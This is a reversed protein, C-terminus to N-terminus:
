AVRRKNKSSSSAGSLIRELEEPDPSNALAEQRSINSANVHRALQQNLTVMGTSEQGIQMQSYVQHLKDERILNRIAPTLALYEYVMIRGNRDKKECLAQSLVAELTFSLLTRIYDQRDLPFMQVLRNITNIAGNTHLTSLVLHGTEAARLAAEATEQDRMEGVLIVDPDERLSQRIATHFSDCDTGIERQNVLSMKHKHTFEIPDEITIIHCRKSVNIAEVMAALSTSKGSGTAGTVLILGNPKDVLSHINESFGLNRLEPIKSPIRRFVGAVAGRQIFLNARLRAVNKVGFAFDLERKEEFRRKQDDTLLSYCLSQTEEASLVPSKSRFINGNVRFAPPAGVTLHLDSAGQEIMTRLLTNLNYHM